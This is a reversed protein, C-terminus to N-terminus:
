SLVYVILSPLQGDTIGVQLSEAAKILNQLQDQVVSIEGKYMFYVIAQVEWGRLDKLVIIPHKCPNESFIKQFYPSYFRILYRSYLPHTRTHTYTCTHMNGAHLFFSKIHGFKLKKACSLSTLSHKAKSFHILPM